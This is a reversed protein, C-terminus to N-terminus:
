GFNLFDEDNNYFIFPNEGFFTFSRSLSCEKGIKYDFYPTQRIGNRWVMESFGSLPDPIGDIGDGEWTGGKSECLTQSGHTNYWTNTQTWTEAAFLCAHRDNNYLPNSCIGIAECDGQNTHQSDSCYPPNSCGQISKLFSSPREGSVRPVFCIEPTYFSEPPISSTYLNTNISVGPLGGTIVLADISLDNGTEINGTFFDINEILKQGNYYIHNNEWIKQGSIGTIVVQGQDRAPQSQSNTENFFQPFPPFYGGQGTPIRNPVLGLVAANADSMHSWYGSFDICIAPKDIIDYYISQEDTMLGSVTNDTLVAYDYDHNIEDTAIYAGSEGRLGQTMYSPDNVSQRYLGYNYLRIGSGTVKYDVDLGIGIDGRAEKFSLVEVNEGSELGGKFNLFYRNYFNIKDRDGLSGSTVTTTSTSSLDGTLMHIEVGTQIQGTLGSQYSIITNTGDSDEFTRYAEVYGTIGTAYSIVEEFGTVTPVEITSTTSTVEIGSSFMCECMTTSETNGFSEDYLAFSNIFGEYGTYEPSRTDSYGLQFASVPFGGLYIQKTPIYNDATIDQQELEKKEIDYVGIAIDSNSQSVSVISNKGIEKNLTKSDYSDGYNYRIYLKNAQNIGVYFGSASDYSEMTSLLIRSLNNQSTYDCLDPSVDLAATWGSYDVEFGVRVFDVGSFYGQHTIPLDTEGMSFGAFYDGRIVKTSSGFGPVTAEKIHDGTNYRLNYLFDSRYYKGGVHNPENVVGTIGSAFDYYVQLGGTPILNAEVCDIYRNYTM